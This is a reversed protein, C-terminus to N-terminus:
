GQSGKQHLCRRDVQGAPAPSSQQLPFDRDAPIFCDPVPVRGQRAESDRHQGMVEGGGIRATRQRAVASKVHQAEFGM